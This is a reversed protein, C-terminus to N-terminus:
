LGVGVLAALRAPDVLEIGRAGKKAILGDKEFRTMRRSVTEITLGLMQAMEGRSLPLEFQDAPHCPSDSAARALSLILGALRTEADQKGTLELLERAAHLDDQSRRLLARALAPHKDLAREMESRAFVCLRCDTLAVVDHHAFPQFLEGVFGSPHILALIREEGNQDFSTVKLAGYVLTACSHEEDGAAFLMEGKKLEVTRGARALDEREEDSLVACAASDRVPCTACALTM